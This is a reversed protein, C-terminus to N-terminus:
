FIEQEVQNYIRLYILQKLQIRLVFYIQQILILVLLMFSSKNNLINELNLYTFLLFLQIFFILLTFKILVAWNDILSKLGLHLCKSYSINEQIFILKSIMSWIFISLLFIALITTLFILLFFIFKESSFYNLLSDLSSIFPVFFILVSIIILTFFFLNFKLNPIFYQVANKFFSVVSSQNKNITSFLIGANILNSVLVWFLLSYKASNLIILISSKHFRIYDSIVTHNYHITLENLELSNGISSKLTSYLDLGFIVVIFLQLFYNILTIQWNDLIQKIENQYYNFM